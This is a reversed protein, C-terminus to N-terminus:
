TESRRPLEIVKGKTRGPSSPEDVKPAPKPPVLVLQVPRNGMTFAAGQLHDDDLIWTVIQPPLTLILLEVRHWGKKVDPSIDNIRAYFAPQRELHVLVLDNATLM